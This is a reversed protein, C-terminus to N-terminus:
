AGDTPPLHDSGRARVGRGHASRMAHVANAIAAQTARRQAAANRSPMERPDDVPRLPQPDDATVHIVAAPNGM